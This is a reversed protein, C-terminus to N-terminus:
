PVGYMYRINYEFLEMEGLNREFVMLGYSELESLVQIYQSKIYDEIHDSDIFLQCINSIRKGESEPQPNQSYFTM